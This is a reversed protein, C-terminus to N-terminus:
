WASCWLLVAQECVPIQEIARDCAECAWVEIEGAKKTKMKSLNLYQRAGSESRQTLAMQMTDDSVSEQVSPRISWQEIGPIKLEPKSPAIRTISDLGNPLM